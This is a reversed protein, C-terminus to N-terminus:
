PEDRFCSRPSHARDLVPGRAMGEVTESTKTWQGMGAPLCMGARKKSERGRCAPLRGYVGHYIGEDQTFGRERSLASRVVADGGPKMGDFSKNNRPDITTTDPRLQHKRQDHQEKQSKGVGPPQALDRLRQLTVRVLHISRSTTGFRKRDRSSWRRRTMGGGRRFRILTIGLSPSSSCPWAFRSAWLSKNPHVSRPGDPSRCVRGANIPRPSVVRTPSASRSDARLARVNRCRSTNSVAASLRSTLKYLALIMVVDAATLGYEPSPVAFASAHARRRYARHRAPHSERPSPGRSGLNSLLSTSRRRAIQSRYRRRDSGRGRRAKTDASRRRRFPQHTSTSGRRAQRRADHRARSCRARGGDTACWLIPHAGESQPRYRAAVRTRRRRRTASIYAEASLAERWSSRPALARPDRYEPHHRNRGCAAARSLPEIALAWLSLRPPISRDGPRSDAISGLHRPREYGDM